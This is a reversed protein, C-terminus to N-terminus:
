GRVIISPETRNISLLKDVYKDRFLEFKTEKDSYDSHHMVAKHVLDFDYGINYLRYADHSIYVSQEKLVPWIDNYAEIAHHIDFHGNHWEISHKNDPNLDKYGYKDPDIMLKSKNERGEVRPISLVILQKQHLPGDPDKLWDCLDKLSDKTEHPLGAIFSAGLGIDSNRRMWKLGEKTKDPHMGKGIAKGSQHNLTEIGFRLATCGAENFLDLTHPHSIMLDHRAYGTWNVKFPLSTFIRHLMECKEVSDNLLDDMIDYKTTGFNEYNRILERRINKESRIYKRSHGTGNLPFFCFSCRFVCGRAIEIPLAEDPFIIDQKKWIIESNHFDNFVYPAKDSHLIKYGDLEETVLNDYNQYIDIISKDAFGTVILDICNLYDNEIVSTTGNRNGGLIVKFNYVSKFDNLIELSYNNPFLSHEFRVNLFTNSIGVFRTEPGIFKLFVKKLQDKTMRAALDIVQVDAGRERLVTALRHAGAAKSYGLAYVDTLIIFESM